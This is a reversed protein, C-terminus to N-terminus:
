CQACMMMASGTRCRGCLGANSCCLQARPTQSRCRAVCWEPLERQGELVLQPRRVAHGRLLAVADRTWATGGAQTLAEPRLRWVLPTGLGQQAELWARWGRLFPRTGLLAGHSRTFASLADALAAGRWDDRADAALPAPVVCPARLLEALQANQDAAL